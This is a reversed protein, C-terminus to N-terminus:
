SVRYYNTTTAGISGNPDGVTDVTASKNFSLSDTRIGVAHGDHVDADKWGASATVNKATGDLAYLSASTGHTVWFVGKTLDVALSELTLSTHPTDSLTVFSVYTTGTANYKHIKSNSGDLVYLNTGDHAIGVADTGSVKNSIDITSAFANSTTSYTHINTGNLNYLVNNHHAFRYPAAQSSMDITASVALTSPNVAYAKNEGSHGVYVTSSNKYAYGAYLTSDYATDFYVRSNATNYNDASLPTATHSSIYSIGTTNDSYPARWPLTSSVSINTTDPTTSASYSTVNNATGNFYFIKRGAGSISNMVGVYSPQLTNYYPVIEPHWSWTYQFQLTSMAQPQLTSGSSVTSFNVALYRLMYVTTANTVNGYMVVFESSSVFAAKVTHRNNSSPWDVGGVPALNFTGYHTQLDDSLYAIAPAGNTGGDGSIFARLDGAAMNSGTARATRAYNMCSIATANCTTPFVTGDRLNRASVFTTGGSSFKNVYGNDTVVFLENSGTDRMAGGLNIRATSVGQWPSIGTAASYGTLTGNNIYSKVPADPYTSSTATVGARLFVEGGKTVTAATDLLEVRGGIPVSVGGGGGGIFDTFNSM